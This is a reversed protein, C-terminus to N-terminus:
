DTVWGGANFKEINQKKINNWDEKREFHKKTAAEYKVQLAHYALATCSAHTCHV